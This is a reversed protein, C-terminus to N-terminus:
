EEITIALIIPVTQGNSIIEIAALKAMGQQNIGQMTMGKAIVDNEWVYVYGGVGKGWQDKKRAPYVNGATILNEERLVTWSGRPGTPEVRM